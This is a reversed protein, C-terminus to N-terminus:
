TGRLADLKKRLLENVIKPNAKGKTAKMAEGILFGFVQQKGGLYTEVQGKNNELVGDIIKELAATDSVQVLGKKEVIAGPSEHTRVMEEFVDKAIKGSITGERIMSLM